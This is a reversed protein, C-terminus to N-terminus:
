SMKNLENKVEQWYERTQELDFRKPYDKQIGEDIWAINLELIEDVAIKACEIANEKVVKEDYDNSLMGSGMYCYMMPSYKEVLEEAKQKHTKM